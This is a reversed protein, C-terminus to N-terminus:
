RGVRTPSAAVPRTTARIPMTLRVVTGGATSSEVALVAGLRHARRRMSALGHGDSEASVDFGRGNDAVELFLSAGDARFSIAVRTCSSHRAANNVAEKFVLYLDRRVQVGLKMSQGDDPVNLTLGVDRLEFVEEAHDRMRRVVDRLTDREPTVAWVIDSMAAVSERAIRSISSLPADVNPEVAPLPQRAVESLIAIRTLNAGIDDHLDTAIHTRLRELELVRSLRYRHLGVLAIGLTFVAASLFWWRQWIPPLVTFTVVAPRESALGDANVARVLFRYRGPSLSAFTVRRQDTAQGWERDSGELRYQYRLGEGAAFGLAVFDVQLQNRSPSLDGLVIDTEGTASTPLSMGAVTLATILIPPAAAQEAPEPAYRSLGGQTGFWLTGTRDRFASLISGPALGDDITFRRVRGTELTLRDVGRGTAVYLRDYLDDTISSVTNSSLGQATTYHTFIPTAQDFAEVHILGARGSALWLRSARDSYIRVIPGSPGGGNAAFFTFTGKKYRAVGATFGIWVNGAADEGFARPLEDRLSPLQPSQSLDRLSRTARDWRKLGADPSGVVSIWVSGTSDEFLRYVQYAGLERVAYVAQASATRVDLFSALPPFRFLGNGGTVWWEGGRTRLTAQEPVWGFDFPPRPAFWEIQQGDFRGFRSFVADVTPGHARATTGDFAFARQDGLASGRFYVSGDGDSFIDAVTLVGDDEGYSVFGNRVVKMAGNTPTGLWLNGNSDEGLSTLGYHTLGNRRTSVRLRGASGATGPLLEILGRATAVWFRGDATERLQAIWPSPLDDPYRYSEAVVPPAHSEDFALRFFGANRSGAWLRGRGDSLLDHYHEDPLGTQISYRAASGDAWRRYLGNPTACWLTGFRDELLDNVYREEPTHSPMGVDVMVLVSATARRELRCLGKRTGCWIAGDRTEVLSL